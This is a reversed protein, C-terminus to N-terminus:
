DVVDMVSMNSIAELIEDKSVAM